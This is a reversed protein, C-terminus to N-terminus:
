CGLEEVLSSQDLARVFGDLGLADELTVAAEDAQARDLFAGVVVHYLPAEGNWSEVVHADANATPFGGVDLFGTQGLQAANIRGALKEAAGPNRSAAVQVTLPTLTTRRAKAITGRPADVLDATMEFLNFLHGDEWTQEIDICSETADKCITIFGHEVSLTTGEPLLAGIRGAWKAYTRAREPSWTASSEDTAIALAVKDTEVFVGDWCAHARNPLATVATAAVLATAFLRTRITM